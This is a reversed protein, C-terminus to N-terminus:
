ALRMRELIAQNRQAGRENLLREVRSPQSRPARQVCSGAVTVPFGGVKSAIEEAKEWPFTQAQERDTTWTVVPEASLRLYAQPRREIWEAQVLPLGCGPANYRNRAVVGFIQLPPAIM